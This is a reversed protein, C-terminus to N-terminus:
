SPAAEGEVPTIGNREDYVELYARAMSKAQMYRVSGPAEKLMTRVAEAFGKALAQDQGAKWAFAEMGRPDRTVASM